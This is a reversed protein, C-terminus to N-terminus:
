VEPRSSDTNESTVNVGEAHIQIGNANIEFGGSNTVQITEPNRGSVELTFSPAVHVM